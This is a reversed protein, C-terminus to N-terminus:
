PPPPAASQQTTTELFGLTARNEGYTEDLWGSDTLYIATFAHLGHKSFAQTVFIDMMFNDGVAVAIYQKVFTKTPLRSVRDAGMGQSGRFRAVARHYACSSQM